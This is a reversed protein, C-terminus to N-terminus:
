AATAATPSPDAGAGAVQAARRPARAWRRGELLLMALLTPVLAAASCAAVQAASAHWTEILVVELAAGAWPVAITAARRALAANTLLTVVSTAAAVLTLTRVVGTADAYGDGYLLGLV